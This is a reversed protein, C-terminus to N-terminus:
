FDYNNNQRQKQRGGKDRKNDANSAEDCPMLTLQCGDPIFLVLPLKISMKKCAKAITTKLVTVTFIWM